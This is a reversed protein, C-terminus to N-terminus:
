SLQIELVIPYMAMATQIQSLGQVQIANQFPQVKPAVEQTQCPRKMHGLHQMDITQKGV